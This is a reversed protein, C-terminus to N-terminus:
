RGAGKSHLLYCWNNQHTAEHYSMFPLLTIFHSSIKYGHAFDSLRPLIFNSRRTKFNKSETKQRQLTKYFTILCNISASRLSKSISTYDTEVTTNIEATCFLSATACKCIIKKMNEM